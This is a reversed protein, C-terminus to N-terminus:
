SIIYKSETIGEKPTLCLRDMYLVLPRMLAHMHLTLTDYQLLHGERLVVDRDDSRGAHVDVLSRKM